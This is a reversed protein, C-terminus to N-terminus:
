RFLYEETSLNLRDSLALMYSNENGLNDVSGVTNSTRFFEGVNNGYSEINSTNIRRTTILSWGGGNSTMDCYVQFKDLSNGNTPDIWYVGDGFSDGADIISKCSFGPFGVTGTFIKGSDVVANGYYMYVTTANTGNYVTPVKVWVDVSVATDDEIWYNLINGNIDTFRIDDLDAQLKGATIDASLDVGDLIKVQFDTLDGGSSNTVAIAKRYGWSDDWWTAEVEESFKFMNYFFGSAIILVIIFSYGFWRKTRKNKIINKFKKEFNKLVNELKITQNNKM